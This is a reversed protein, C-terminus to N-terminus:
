TVWINMQLRVLFLLFVGYVAAPLYLLRGVASMGHVEAVTGFLTHVGWYMMALAPTNFIVLLVIFIRYGWDKRTQPKLLALAMRARYRLYLLTM